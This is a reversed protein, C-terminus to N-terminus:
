FEIGKRARIGDKFPHKRPEIKSVYDALDVLDQAPKRGTMVVELDEPKEKLLRILEDHILFGKRDADVCEDLILLGAGVEVAKDFAAQLYGPYFAEAEAREEPTMRFSFGFTKEPLFVHINDVMKFIKLESTNNKKLFQAFVVRGGNGAFRVTLGAAATSKGKGDGEYIHILGAM